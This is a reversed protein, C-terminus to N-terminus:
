ERGDHQRLLEAVEKHGDEAALHLATSGSKDLANVAAGKSLLLEVVVKNGMRAAWHLPTGTNGRADVEAGNALLLEVVDKHGDWVAVHLPTHGNNDKSSVLEPDLKLLAKVKVLDGAKAADHIEGCLGPISWALTIVLVTAIHSLFTNM